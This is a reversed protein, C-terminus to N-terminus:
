ASGVMAIDVRTSRPLCAVRQGCTFVFDLGLPFQAHNDIFLEPDPLSLYARDKTGTGRLVLGRENSLEDLEVILTACRDPYSTSGTPYDSLPLLENWRGMAFQCEGRNSKPAGTHYRLWGAVTSGALDETLYLLTDADLLTLAASGAAASLGVPTECAPLEMITGPRAMANLMVRFARAADEAPKSFGGGLASADTDISRGM